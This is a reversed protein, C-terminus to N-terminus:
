LVSAKSKSRSKTWSILLYVGFGGLLLFGFYELYQPLYIIVIKSGNNMIGSENNMIQWGNSWNNVMVHEKIERGFLPIFLRSYWSDLLMSDPSVEYAKWGSDYSQSLVLTVNESPALSVESTAPQGLVGELHGSPVGPITSPDLSVEYYSPNPHDVNDPVITTQNSKDFVFDPKVIKMQTLFSYPIPNVTINGLNNVTKERGISINDLHITYGVGYQEMPPLVFYSTQYNQNKVQTKSNQSKIKSNPLYTEIDSRDSNKNILAFLLSKGEINRSEITILYPLRQALNPLDFDLCNSSGVSTMRLWEKEEEFIEDHKIEGKNFKDCSRVEHNMIGSEYNASYYGKVKPVRVEMKGETIYSLKVEGGNNMIGSEYNMIRIQEGDLYVKPEKQVSNDLNNIDVESIEDSLFPPLILTDGELSKPIMTTFSFYDSSGESGQRLPVDEVGFELDEQRRGSFLSRFPYYITSLPAPTTIYNQVDKYAQDYDNSLYSSITTPMASRVSVFQKSPPLNLKYVAIGGFIRKNIVLKSEQIMQNTQNLYLIKPSAPGINHSDVVIWSIDYKQLVQVFQNQNGSYIAHSLEDYNNENTKNWRDADRVLLPMKEGFWQFGSGQYGWDYYEWGSYIPSPLVAARGMDPQSNMYQFFQQYEKPINVKMASSILEGRFMPFGFVFLCIVWLLFQYILIGKNRLVIKEMIIRQAIAFYVSYTFILLISFKTFPMRLSEQFISFHDRLFSYFFGTPGNMGILFFLSMLFVPLLALGYREKRIYSVALGFLVMLFSIYGIILVVVNQLHTSWSLLLQAYGSGERKLWDFLFNKVIAIDSITGFKKNKLFAEDSFMLNTKALPVWSANTLLFYIDPLLWFANVLFVVLFVTVVSKIAIFNRSLLEKRLLVLVYLGLGLLYAYFLQPAYAQPLSFVSVVSLLLLDSKKRGELYKTVYLLSWGLMAYQTTFMEFPVYFQQVTVLNFIYFLSGLFAALERVHQLKTDKLVVDRLFYYIGLAGVTLCLFIYAYRLATMPLVFSLIYLIVLRPLDSMHAHAALAGLGQDERWVGFILRQFNLTFDYEPHLTDWGSLITGPAYNAVAIIGTILILALPFFHKKIIAIMQKNHGMEPPAGLNFSALSRLIGDRQYM